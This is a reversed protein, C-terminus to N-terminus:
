IERRLTHIDEILRHMEVGLTGNYIGRIRRLHDILVFNETHVFESSTHGSPADRDVFYSERALRYILKRNGTALHWKGSKVGEREAYSKLVEVSDIWPTVSYSLLLINPDDLFNQQVQTLNSTLKPCISPCSTFFFSVVHIRGAFDQESLTDGSQNLVQFPHTTHIDQYAPDDPEIWEPTFHPGNYFPLSVPDSSKCGWQSGFCILIGWFLLETHTM